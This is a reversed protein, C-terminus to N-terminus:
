LVPSWTFDSPVGGGRFRRLAFSFDTFCRRVQCTQDELGPPPAPWGGIGAAGGGCPRASGSTEM